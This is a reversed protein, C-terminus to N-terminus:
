GDSDEKKGEYADKLIADLVTPTIRYDDEGFLNHEKDNSPYEETLFQHLLEHIIGKYRDDKYLEDSINFLWNGVSNGRATNEKKLLVAVRSIEYLNEGTPDKFPLLEASEIGTRRSFKSLDSLGTFDNSPINKENIEFDFYVTEGKSNQRGKGDPGNFYKLVEKIENVSNSSFRSQVRKQRLENWKQRGIKKGHKEQLDNKISKDIQDVTVISIKLKIVHRIVNGSADTETHRIGELGELELLAIPNNGSFQYPTLGPYKDTLPDPAFFRGVRPDHMRFKYNISNGEGKIENDMEQGQFGYRYDSTNGHRGPLLMGSRINIKHIKGLSKRM